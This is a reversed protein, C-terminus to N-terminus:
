ALIAARRGLALGAVVIVLVYAAMGTNLIGGSTFAWLTIMVWIAASLLVGEQEALKVMAIADPLSPALQKDVYTPKGARLSAEVLPRNQEGACATNVLMM